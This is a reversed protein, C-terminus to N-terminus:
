SKVIKFCKFSQCYRNHSKLLMINHSNSGIMKTLNPNRDGLVMMQPTREWEKTRNAQIMKSQSIMKYLSM